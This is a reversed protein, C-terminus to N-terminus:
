RIGCRCNGIPGVRREWESRQNGKRRFCRKTNEECSGYLWQLIAQRLKRLDCSVFLFFIWSIGKDKFMITKIVLMQSAIHHYHSLFSVHPCRPGEELCGSHPGWYAKIGSWIVKLPLWYYNVLSAGNNAGMRGCAFEHSRLVQLLLGFDNKKRPNSISVIIAPRSLSAKPLM